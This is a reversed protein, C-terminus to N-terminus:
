GIFHPEGIKQIMGMWALGHDFRQITIAAMTMGGDNPIGRLRYACRRIFQHCGWDIAMCDMVSPQYSFDGVM